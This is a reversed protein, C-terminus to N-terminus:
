SRRGGKRTIMSRKLKTSHMTLTSAVALQNASNAPLMLSRDQDEYEHFVYRLRSQGPYDFNCLFIIYTEKLDNYSENKELTYHADVKSLYYRMRRGLNDQDAVQMEINYIRNDKDRVLIDLRVDKTQRDTNPLNYFKLQVNLHVSFVMLTKLPTVVCDM